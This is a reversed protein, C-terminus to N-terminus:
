WGRIRGTTRHARGNKCVAGARVLAVLTGHM